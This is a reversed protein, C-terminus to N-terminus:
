ISAHKKEKIKLKTLIFIFFLELFHFHSGSIALLHSLGNHQYSTRQLNEIEKDNGLIFAEIYSHSKLTKSKEIIMKKFLLLPNNTKRLLNITKVSLLYHIQKNKLYKKYSFTHPLTADDPHNLSGEIYVIDGIELNLDQKLYTCQINEKSKKEKLVFSYGKNIQKIEKIEGYFSTQNEKINTVNPLLLRICSSFLLLFLIIKYQLNTKSKQM